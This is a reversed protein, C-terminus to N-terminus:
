GKQTPTTLEPSLFPAFFPHDLEYVTTQKLGLKTREFMEVLQDGDVLEVPPAGDREAERRAESSFSGTTLFIGKDARGIMANRFDGVQARSVTDKYRKCQFLVKFSLFPNVQLIGVGDIGGDKPRGTVTVREFGSERLLRACISEFGTPTVKKLLELLLYRHDEEDAEDANAAEDLGAERSDARHRAAAHIKSWKQALKRAAGGDLSKSSGAPTLAWVGHRSGDLLGDWVLYQRAWHVQNYFRTQGSKLTEELAKDKASLREALLDCVERPRGSGGLERLADLIPGMWRVFSLQNKPM